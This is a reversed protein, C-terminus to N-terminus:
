EFFKFRRVHLSKVRCSKNFVLLMCKNVGFKLIKLTTGAVLVSKGSERLFVLIYEKKFLSIM